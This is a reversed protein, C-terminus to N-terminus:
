LGDKKTDKLGLSEPLELDKVVDEKSDKPLELDKVVGEKADKERLREPLELDKLM